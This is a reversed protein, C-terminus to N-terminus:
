KKGSKRSKAPSRKGAKKAVPKTVAKQVASKKPKLVLPRRPIPPAPPLAPLAKTLYEIPIPRKPLPPAIRAPLPPAAYNRATRAPLPPAVYNRAPVPPPPAPKNRYERPVISRVYNEVIRKEAVIANAERRTLPKKKKEKKQKPAALMKKTAEIQAATREKKPKDALYQTYSRFIPLGNVARHENIIKLKEARKKRAMELEEKTKAM